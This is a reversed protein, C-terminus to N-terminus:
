EEVVIRYRYYGSGEFVEGELKEGPLVSTIIRVPVNYGGPLLLKGVDCEETINYDTMHASYYGTCSVVRGDRVVYTIDLVRDGASSSYKAYYYVRLNRAPQQSPSGQEHSTRAFVESEGAKSSDRAYYFLLIAAFVIALVLAMATRNNM